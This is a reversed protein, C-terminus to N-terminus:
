LAKMCRINPPFAFFFASKGFKIRAGPARPEIRKQLPHTVVNAVDWYLPQTSPLWGAGMSTSVSFSPRVDNSTPM